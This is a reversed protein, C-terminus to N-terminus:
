LASSAIIVLIRETFIQRFGCGTRQSIIPKSHLLTYDTFIFLVQSHVQIGQLTIHPGDQVVLIMLKRGHLKTDNKGKPEDVLTPLTVYSFALFTCLHHTARTTLARLELNGRTM